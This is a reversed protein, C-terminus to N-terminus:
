SFTSYRFRQIIMEHPSPTSFLERTEVYNGSTYEQLVSQWFQTARKNQPFQMLEWLGKFPDFVQIAIRHEIGKGQFKAVIFFESLNWDTGKSGHTKNVLVFGALENNIRIIFRFIVLNLGTNILSLALKMLKMYVMKQSLLLLIMQKTDLYNM